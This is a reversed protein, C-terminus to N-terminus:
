KSYKSDSFANLSEIVKEFYFKDLSKNKEIYDKALDYLYLASFYRLRTFSDNKQKLLERKATQRVNIKLIKETLYGEPLFSSILAEEFIIKPPWVNSVSKQLIKDNTNIISKYNRCLKKNKKFLIHFCEHLFISNILYDIKQLPWGSCALVIKDKFSWGQCEEQLESSLLLRVEIKKPLQQKTLGCLKRIIDLHNNIQSNRAEFKHAITKLKKNEKPWIKDFRNEFLKLISQIQITKTKGIQKSINPWVKNPKEFLFITELNSKAQQLIESFVKLAVKEQPQLEGTKALWEKKRQPICVVENWQSLNSAFSYLNVLKPYKIEIRM